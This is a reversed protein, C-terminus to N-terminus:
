SKRKPRKNRPHRRLKKQPRRTRKLKFSKCSKRKSGTLRSRERKSQNKRGPPLRISRSERTVITSTLLSEKPNKPNNNKRKPSKLPKNLKEKKIPKTRISRM